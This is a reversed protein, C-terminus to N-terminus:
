KFWHGNKAVRRLYGAITSVIQMAQLTTAGTTQLGAIDAALDTARQEAAGQQAKRSRQRAAEPV